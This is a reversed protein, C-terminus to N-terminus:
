SQRYNKIFKKIKYILKSNYIFLKTPKLKFWYFFLINRIINLSNQKQYKFQKSKLESNDGKFLKIMDQSLDNKFNSYWESVELQKKELLDKELILNNIIGPAEKWDKVVIFPHDGFVYKYYDINNFKKVIPICGFELVEMIRFSDPNVFGFPCPAFTTEKYVEIIKEAELADYSMFGSTKHLYNPTLPIINNIMNERTSYIQGFFSWLYKRNNTLQSINKNLYGSQFGLPITFCDKKKIRPDFYSRLVFDAGNYHENEGELTEDSLHIISYPRKIKKLFSDIENYIETSSPSYLILIKSKNIKNKDLEFFQTPNVKVINEDKPIILNEIYENEFKNQHESSVIIIL